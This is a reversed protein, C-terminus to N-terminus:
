RGEEKKPAQAVAVSAGTALSDSPNEIVRDEPGVGALIEVTPGFDRGLKVNRLEVKGDARVIGVQPGEARFLLTRAPLTLAPATKAQIFRVQAYGGALVEEKPNDLELEVLLTRSDSAM